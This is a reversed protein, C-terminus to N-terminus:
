PNTNHQLQQSKILAIGLNNEIIKLTSTNDFTHMYMHHTSLVADQLEQDDELDMINLGASKCEKKSIHRSHSKQHKHDSFINLINKSKEDDGNCMNYQLWELVMRESWAIANKCTGLFTPHYKNFIPQWIMASQPNVTVDNVAQEFEDVVAQCAVGNYQPDIPGLNSHNGMLIEKSALSIMTGASMAIQPVIVRIDKDFISYLYDVISETAAVEGGPTHLILDLGKKKDLKHITLMLGSKDSDNIALDQSGSKTLFASYYAIVNRGTIESVKTLYKRRVVDFPNVGGQNADNIEVLLEGWNPM